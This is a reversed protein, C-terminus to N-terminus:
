DSVKALAATTGLFTNKVVGLTRISELPNFAFYDAARIMKLNSKELLISLSKVSYGHLHEFPSMIHMKGGDFPWENWLDRSKSARDLNPVTIRILSQNDCLNKISAITELPDPVHELVQELLIVDFRSGSLEALDSVVDYDSSKTMRIPNPDYATVRFGLKFAADSFRCNGAGFDLLTQKQGMNFNRRLRGLEDMKRGNLASALSPSLSKASAYMQALQSDSPQYKYWLHDCAQCKDISIKKDKILDWDRYLGSYKREDLLEFFKENKNNLQVVTESNAYGCIPCHSLCRM